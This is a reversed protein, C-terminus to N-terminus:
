GARAYERQSYFNIGAIIRQYVARKTMYYEYNQDEPSFNFWMNQRANALIDEELSGRCHYHDIFGYQNYHAIFGSAVSLFKYGTSNLTQIDNCAALVNNVIRTQQRLSLPKIM